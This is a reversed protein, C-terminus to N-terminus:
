CPGEWCLQLHKEEIRRTARNVFPTMAGRHAYLSKRTRLWARYGLYFIVGLCILGGLRKGTM